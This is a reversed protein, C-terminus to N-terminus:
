HAARAPYTEELGRILHWLVENVPTPVGAAQGERVVAGSIADIETRRRRRIDQLMSNMNDATRQCVEEAYAPMNPHSLRVEKARAVEVAESVAVSLLHRLSKSELLGGNRVQALAALPNIGANIVLKAWLVSALNTTLEVHIGSTSFAEAIQTLRETLQGSPEGIITAGQGAHHVQGPALLTAAQSTVGAIVRDDGLARQLIEINGLGNQLTLVTSEPGILFAATQAADTTDYSKVAVIVLRASRVQDPSATARVRADFEGTVGSVWLGRRSLLRARDPQRAILWVEHGGRSLMAGFLCGIAGPGIIAITM